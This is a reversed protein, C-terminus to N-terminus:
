LRAWFYKFFRPLLLRQWRLMILIILMVVEYCLVIKLCYWLWGIFVIHFFGVSLLLVNVVLDVLALYQCWHLCTSIDLCDLCSSVNADHPIWSYGRQLKAINFEVNSTKLLFFDNKIKLWILISILIFNRFTMLIQTRRTKNYRKYLFQKFFSPVLRQWMVTKAIMTDFNKTHRYFSHEKKHKIYTVRTEEWTM